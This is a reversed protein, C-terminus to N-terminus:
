GIAVAAREKQAARKKKWWAGIAIQAPHEVFKRAALALLVVFVYSIWPDFRQVHLREPIHNIHLLLFVNFHLLYLCYTSAGITVLPRISFVRALPSPGALGLIIAGFIPTLLGGHIMIYPLHKILLYFTCWAWVFGVIAITMRQRSTMKLVNQLKGLVIGAMFTCLYPLPTYKLWELWWGGTYRDTDVLHLRVDAMGIAHMWPHGLAHTVVNPLHDPNFILYIMQPILGFSWFLLILAILRSPKSPWRVRMLLPFIAYLTMECSLTWAVTNWFTALTPFWGQMLVISLVTGEWFDSTSRVQHEVRLMEWFIILAFLYVPYLRSLRAVWFDSLKLREPRDLYNYALIYGSILFFFSVFVYGNDIIPYLWGLGSPTFHFFLIFVALLTRIGTLAPLAPKRTYAPQMAAAPEGTSTPATALM